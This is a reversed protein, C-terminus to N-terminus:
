ATPPAPLTRTYCVSVAFQVAPAPLSKFSALFFLLVPLSFRARGNSLASPRAPDSNRRLSQGPAPESGDYGTHVLRVRGSKDIVIRLSAKLICPRRVSRRAAKCAGSLPTGAQKLFGPRGKGADRRRETHRVAWFSGISNGQHRRYVKKWSRCNGAAPLVVLRGSISSSSAGGFAPPVSRRATSDASPSSPAPASMRRTAVRTALAPIATVALRRRARGPVCSGDRGGRMASRAALLSPRARRVRRVCECDAFALRPRSPHLSDMGFHATVFV